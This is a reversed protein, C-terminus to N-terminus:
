YLVIKFAQGLSLMEFAEMGKELPFKHTILKLYEKPSECISAFSKEFHRLAFGSTGTVKVEKYHLMASDLVVDVNKPLGSFILLTGGVKTKKLYESVLEAKNVAIVINDFVGKEVEESTLTKINWDNLMKARLSNPEVVSVDVNNQMLSLAFLAGMPGGGVVLVKSKGEKLTLREIGNFVCALPETLTFVDYYEKDINSPIKFIGQNYGEEIGVYECFSGSSVYKKDACLEGLNDQCLDCEGCEYYPAVVVYDNISLGSNEPCKVIKGYFEHGLITPPKFYQHGVKYTKLDTGCIGTGLVNLVIPEKPEPVDQIELESIKTYVLAKM